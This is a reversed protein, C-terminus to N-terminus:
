NVDNVPSLTRLVYRFTETNQAWSFFNEERGETILTLIYFRGQSELIAVWLEYGALNIDSSKIRYADIKSKVILKHFKIDDINKILDGIELMNKEFNKKLDAIEIAETTGLSKSVVKVDIRGNLKMSNVDVFERSTGKLNLISAEMRDITTVPPSYLIWSQPYEFKVIDVFTYTEVPEIPTTDANTLAFSTMTWIQQEREVKEYETPVLYEALVVRHGTIEAVARVTFSNGKELTTYEAEIRRDSKVLLGDITGGNLLIFNLFWNQASIFHKLDLARVDIRSRIDGRAPSLYTTLPQFLESSMKANETKPSPLEIWEKPLRLRFNLANDDELEFTKIDSKSYFEDRSMLVKRDLEKIDELKFFAYAREGAMLVFILTLIVVALNYLKRNQM